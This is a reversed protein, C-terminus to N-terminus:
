AATKTDDTVTGITREELAAVGVAAGGGVVASACGALVPTITIMMLLSVIRARRFACCPISGLNQLDIM